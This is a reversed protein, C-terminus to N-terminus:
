LSASERLTRAGRFYVSFFVAGLFIIGSVSFFYASYGFGAIIYGGAFLVAAEGLGQGTVAAGSMVSWWAASVLEMWYVSLASMSIAGLAMIGMYAAGAPFWHNSLALFVLCVFMGFMSYQITRKNGVQAALVPAFLAAVGSLLLATGSIAGINLTALELGDDLFM